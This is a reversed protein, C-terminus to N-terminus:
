NVALAFVKEEEAPQHVRLVSSLEELAARFEPLSELRLALEMKGLSAIVDHHQQMISSIAADFLNKRMLQPYVEFEEVLVHGTLDDKLRVFVAQLKEADAASAISRDLRDMSLAFERHQETLTQVLRRLEQLHESVPAAIM